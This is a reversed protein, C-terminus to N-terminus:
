SQKKEIEKERLITNCRAVDRRVDKLRHPKDLNGMKADYTLNFIEKRLAELKLNLEDVTMNRLDQTKLSM